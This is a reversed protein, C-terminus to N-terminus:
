WPTRDGSTSCERRRLRPLKDVDKWELLRDVAERGIRLAEDSQESGTM